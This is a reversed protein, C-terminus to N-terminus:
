TGLQLANELVSERECSVVLRAFIHMEWQRGVSLLALFGNVPNESEEDNVM